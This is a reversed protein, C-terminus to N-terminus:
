VILAPVPATKEANQQKKGFIRESRKLVYAKEDELFKEMIERPPIKGSFARLLVIETESNNIAKRVKRGDFEALKATLNNMVNYVENLCTLGMQSVASM